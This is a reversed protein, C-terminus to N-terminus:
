EHVPVARTRAGLPSLIRAFYIGQRVGSTDWRVRRRTASEFPLHFGAVRRGSVDFVGLEVSGASPASVILETAGRSIRQIGLELTTPDDTTATPPDPCALSSYAPGDDVSPSEPDVPIALSFTASASAGRADRAICEISYVRGNGSPAREVRVEARGNAIRADPCLVGAGDGAVPEDQWIATVEVSTVDGDPDVVGHFAVPVLVPNSISHTLLRASARRLDPPRNAVGLNVLTTATGHMGHPDGTSFALLDTKGDGTVDCAALSRLSSWVGYNGGDVFGGAARDNVAVGISQWTGIFALDLAHDGNLDALVIQDPRSAEIAVSTWAVFGGDGLGRLVIGGLTVLDPIRDGDLDGVSLVQGGGTAALDSFTGDGNGRALTNGALLDVRGDRDVDAVLCYGSGAASWTRTFSGDGRGIFAVIQSSDSCSAVVDALGDANLDAQVIRVDYRNGFEPIGVGQDYGGAANAVWAQGRSFLLDVRGDGSVDALFVNGDAFLSPGLEDSGDGFAGGPLGYYVNIDGSDNTVVDPWGDGDIDMIIGDNVHGSVETEIGGSYDKEAHKYNVSIQSGIGLIDANGDGDLDGVRM